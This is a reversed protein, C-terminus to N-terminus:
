NFRGTRNSFAPYPFPVSSTLCRCVLPYDAPLGAVVRPPHNQRNRGVIEVTAGFRHFGGWCLPRHHAILSIRAMRADYAHATLDVVTTKDFKLNPCVAVVASGM